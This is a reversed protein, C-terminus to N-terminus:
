EIVEPNAQNGSKWRKVRWYLTNRRGPHSLSAIENQLPPQDALPEVSPARSVFCGVHRRSYGAILAALHTRTFAM